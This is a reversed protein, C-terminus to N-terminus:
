LIPISVSVLFILSKVCFVDREYFNFYKFNILELILYRTCFGCRLEDFIIGDDSNRFGVQVHGICNVRYENCKM